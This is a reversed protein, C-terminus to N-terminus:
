FPIEDDATLSPLPPTEIATYDVLAGLLADILGLLARAARLPPPPRLVAVDPPLLLDPHRAILMQASILLAAELLPAPNPLRAAYAHATHKM